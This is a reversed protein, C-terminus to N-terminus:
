QSSTPSEVLHLKHLLHVLRVWFSLNNPLLHVIFSIIPIYSTNNTHQLYYKREM